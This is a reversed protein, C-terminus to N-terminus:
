LDDDSEDSYSVLGTQAIEHSKDAEGNLSQVLELSKNNDNVPTTRAKSVEEANGEDVKAKKTQPKVKIIMSLPRSAPNRKGAPKEEQLLFCTTHCNVVIFIASAAFYVCM